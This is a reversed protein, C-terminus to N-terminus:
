SIEPFPNRPKVDTSTWAVIINVLDPNNVLLLVVEPRENQKFHNLRDYFISADMM